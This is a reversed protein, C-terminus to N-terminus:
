KIKPKIETKFEISVESVEALKYKRKGDEKLKQFRVSM